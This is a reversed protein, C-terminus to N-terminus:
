RRRLKQRILAIYDAIHILKWDKAPYELTPKPFDKLVTRKMYLDERPPRKDYTTYTISAKNSKRTLYSVEILPTSKGVTQKWFATSYGTTFETGITANMRDLYSSVDALRDIIFSFKVGDWLTTPVDMLMGVGALTYDSIAYTVCVGYFGKRVGTVVAPQVANAPLAKSYSYEFPLGARRKFVNFKKEAAEAAKLSEAIDHYLPTWAFRYELLKDSLSIRSKGIRRLRALMENNVSHAYGWRNLIRRPRRLNAMTFLTNDLFKLILGGTQHRERYMMILPLSAGKIKDLLKNDRNAQLNLFKAHLESNADGFWSEQTTIPSLMSETKYTGEGYYTGSINKQVSQFSYYGGYSKTMALYYPQPPLPWGNDAYERFRTFRSKSVSVTELVTPTDINKPEM